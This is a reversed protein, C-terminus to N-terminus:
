FVLPEHGRSELFSNLESLTPSSQAGLKTSKIAGAANAIALCKEYPLGLKWAILFAANFSDGAGTTDVTNVRFAPVQLGLRPIRSGHEGEKVVLLGRYEKELAEGGLADYERANVFLVDVLGLVDRIYELGRSAIAMGPDYSTSLGIKKAEALVWRTYDPKTSSLHAHSVGKFLADVDIFGPKLDANAGRVAVMARRGANDLIVVVKGTPKSSRVVCHTAVGEESLYRVILDGYEDSGVVGAFTVRAKLRSLAVAVNTAAGGLKAFFDKAEQAEDSAPIRDVLYYEDVSANGSVLFSPASVM